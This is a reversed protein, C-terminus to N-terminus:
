YSAVTTVPMFFSIVLLFIVGLIAGTWILGKNKKLFGILLFVLSAILIILLVLAPFTM